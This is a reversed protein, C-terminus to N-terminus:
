ESIDSVWRFEPGGPLHFVRVLGHIPEGPEHNACTALTGCSITTEACGKNTFGSLCPEFRIVLRVEAFGGRETETFMLVRSAVTGTIVISNRTEQPRSKETEGHLGTDSQATAPAAVIATLVLVALINRIM